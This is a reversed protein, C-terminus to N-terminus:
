TAGFLGGHGNARWPDATERLQRVPWSVTLQHTMSIRAYTSDSARWRRLTAQTGSRAGLPHAAQQTDLIAPPPHADSITPPGLM